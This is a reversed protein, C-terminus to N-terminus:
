KSSEPAIKLEVSNNLNMSEKTEIVASEALKM